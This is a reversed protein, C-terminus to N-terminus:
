TSHFFIGRIATIGAIIEYRVLAGTITFKSTTQLISTYDYMLRTATYEISEQGRFNLTPIM